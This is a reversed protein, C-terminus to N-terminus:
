TANITKTTVKNTIITLPFVVIGAQAHTKLVATNISGKAAVLSGAFPFIAPANINVPNSIRIYGIAIRVPASGTELHHRRKFGTTEIMTNINSFFSPTLIIPGSPTPNISNETNNIMAPVPTYSLLRQPLSSLDASNIYVSEHNSIVLWKKLVM